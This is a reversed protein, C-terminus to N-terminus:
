RAAPRNAEHPPTSLAGARNAPLVVTLCTLEPAPSLVARAAVESPVGASHSVPASRHSSSTPSDTARPPRAPRPRARCYRARSSVGAAGPRSGGGQASRPDSAPRTALAARSTVASAAGPAAAVRARGGAAPRPPRPVATIAAASSAQKATAASSSRSPRGPQLTAGSLPTTSASPRRACGSPMIGTAPASSM